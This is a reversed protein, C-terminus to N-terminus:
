SPRWPCMDNPRRVVPEFILKERTGYHIAKHVEDSCCILYEPNLLFETGNQIDDISIPNMHHIYINGGIEYRDDSLGLEHGRDRTIIYNRIRRWDASHYFMQNFQRDFGFTDEGVFGRLNLYDFREEFTSLRILETYTRMTM